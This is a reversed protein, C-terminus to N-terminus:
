YQEGQQHAIQECLVESGGSGARGASHWRNDEEPTDVDAPCSDKLGTLERFLQRVEAHDVHTSGAGKHDPAASTM